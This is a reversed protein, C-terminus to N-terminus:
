FRKSENGVQLVPNKAFNLYILWLTVFLGTGSTLSGNLIGIFFLAFSGLLLGKFDRRKPNNNQGLHPKSFSYISLSLTLFGLALQALADPIKLIVFAGVIVGPLGSILIFLAFQRELPSKKLYRATAGLGLAVSAVKHTALAIGFPLGLFLLIPLQLLGAGQYHLFFNAILAVIFILLQEFM